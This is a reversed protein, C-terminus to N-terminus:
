QAELSLGIQKEINGLETVTKVGGFTIISGFVLWPIPNIRTPLGEWSFM